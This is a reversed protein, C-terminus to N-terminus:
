KINHVDHLSFPKKYIYFANKPKVFNRLPFFKRSFELRYKPFISVILPRPQPRDRRDAYCITSIIAVDFARLNPLCGPVAAEVANLIRRFLRCLQISWQLHLKNYHLDDVELTSKKYDM